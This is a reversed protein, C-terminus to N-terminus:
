RVRVQKIWIAREGAQSLSTRVAALLSRETSVSVRFESMLLRALHEARSGTRPIQHEECTAEFVGRLLEIEAVSMLANGNENLEPM